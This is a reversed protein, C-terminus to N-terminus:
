KKTADGHYTAYIRRKIHIARRGLDDIIKGLPESINGKNQGTIEQEM